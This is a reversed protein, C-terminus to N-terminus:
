LFHWFFKGGFGFEIFGELVLLKDDNVEGGSPAWWALHDGWLESLERLLDSVIGGKDLNVNICISLCSLSASDIAHWCELEVFSAVFNM